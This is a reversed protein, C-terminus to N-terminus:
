YLYSIPPPNIAYIINVVTYEIETVYRVILHKWYFIGPFQFAFISKLLLPVHLTDYSIDSISWIYRYVYRM